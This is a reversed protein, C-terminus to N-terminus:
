KPTIPSFFLRILLMVLSDGEVPMPVKVSVLNALRSQAAQVVGVLLVKSRAHASGPINRAFPPRDHAGAEAHEVVRRRAPCPARGGARDSTKQGPGQTCGSDTRGRRLNHRRNRVTARQDGADGTYAAGSQRLKSHSTKAKSRLMLVGYM